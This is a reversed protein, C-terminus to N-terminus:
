YSVSKSFTKSITDVFMSFSNGDDYNKKVHSDKKSSIKIDHQREENYDLLLTLGKELQKEQIKVCFCFEDVKAGIFEEGFSCFPIFSSPSLNQEGDM